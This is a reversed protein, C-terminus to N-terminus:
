LIVCCDDSKKEKSILPQGDFNKLFDKSVRAKFIDLYQKFDTRFFQNLNQLLSQTLPLQLLMQLHEEALKLEGHAQETRLTQLESCLLQLVSLQEVSLRYLDHVCQPSPQWLRVVGYQNRTLITGNEGVGAAISHYLFEGEDAWSTYGHLLSIQTAGMPLTAICRQNKWVKATFDNSATIITDKGAAIAVINNNTHRRELNELSDENEVLFGAVEGNRMMASGVLVAGNDHVALGRFFDDPATGDRFVSVSGYKDWAYVYSGSKAAVVTGDSSIALSHVLRLYPATLTDVLRGDKWKKVVCTDASVCKSITVLTGDHAMAISNRGPPVAGPSFFIPRSGKWIMADGQAVRAAIIGHSGIAVDVISGRNPHLESKCVMDQWIKIAGSAHGTVITRGDPSLAIPSQIGDAAEPMRMVHYMAFVYDSPDLYYEKVLMQIKAPPLIVGLFNMDELQKGFEIQKKEYEYAKSQACAAESKNFFFLILLGFSYLLSNM